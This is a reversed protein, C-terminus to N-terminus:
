DLARKARLQKCVKPNSEFGCFGKGIGSNSLVLHKLVGGGSSNDEGDGEVGECDGVADQAASEGM